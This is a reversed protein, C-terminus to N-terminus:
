RDKLFPFQTRIHGIKQHDISIIFVGEKDEADLLITGLPDILMSHGLYIETPDAGIRNVGIVYSQNEIARAMLLTKWHHSRSAPFNAIICYIDTQKAQDWFLNAFRLDYCIAPMIQFQHLSFSVVDSGPLYYRDEKAYSFLHIKNYQCIIEGTADITIFSNKNHVTGGFSVCLQYQIAIQRFFDFDANTLETVSSNMSFGTLTMEPFILWDLTSIDSKAQLIALIKEQNLRKNKWYIHLQVIGINLKEM